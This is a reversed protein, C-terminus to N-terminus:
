ATLWHIGDLHAMVAKVEQRSFVVPLREPTKARKANVPGLDIGLVQKYLFSYHKMRLVNRMQDLLKPGTNQSAHPFSAEAHNM